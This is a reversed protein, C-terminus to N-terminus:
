QYRRSAWIRALAYALAQAPFVWILGDHASLAIVDARILLSLALCGLGVAISAIALAELDIRRQLEDSARVLRVVFGIMFLTPIVPLVGILARLPLAADALSHKLLWVCIWTTALYVVAAFFCNRLQTRCRSNM